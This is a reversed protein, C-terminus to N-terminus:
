KFKRLSLTEENLKESDLIDIVKIAKYNNNLVQEDAYVMKNKINHPIEIIYEVNETRRITEYKTLVYKISSM